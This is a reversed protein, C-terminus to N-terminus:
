NVKTILTVAWAQWVTPGRSITIESKDQTM